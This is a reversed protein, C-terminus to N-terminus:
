RKKVDMLRRLVEVGADLAEGYTRFGPFPAEEVLKDFVEPLDTPEVISWYYRPNEATLDGDEVTLALRRLRPPLNKPGGEPYEYVTDPFYSANIISQGTSVAEGLAAKADRFGGRPFNCQSIKWPEEPTSRVGVFPFYGYKGKVCYGLILQGEYRKVPALIAGAPPETLTTM